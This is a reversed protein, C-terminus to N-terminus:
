SNKKNWFSTPGKKQPNTPAPPNTFESVVRLADVHSGINRTM